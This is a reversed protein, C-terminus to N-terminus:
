KRAAVWIIILRENATVLNMRREGAKGAQETSRNKTNFDDPLGVSADTEDGVEGAAGIQKDRM